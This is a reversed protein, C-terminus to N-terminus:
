SSGPGKPWAVLCIPRDKENQPVLYIMGKLM